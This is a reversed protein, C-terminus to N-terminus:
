DRSKEEKYECKYPEDEWEIFRFHPTFRMPVNQYKVNLLVEEIWMWEKRVPKNHFAYLIGTKDRALYHLDLKNMNKIVTKEINTLEDYSVHAM